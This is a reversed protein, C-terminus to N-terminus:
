AGARRQGVSERAASRRSAPALHGRSQDAPGAVINSSIHPFTTVRNNHPHRSAQPVPIAGRAPPWVRRPPRRLARGPGALATVIADINHRVMGEYTEAPTGPGGLADSYLEGGIAVAFGRAAVAAQLAAITRRPVSSEVFVAPIRRATIFDALAQLDSTGAETVTSVGQLGHVEFGYARGFYRFADHATVLVRLEPSLSEARTRVDDDLQRLRELYTATRERYASAHQPDIEALVEGVRAAAVMWLSVDFWVHPDHVAANNEDGLLRESPIAEAVAVARVRGTMQEFARTMAGELHLGSYFIVDAQQMRIVDRASAKYTHPDIGPGMLGTIRVHDGGINAVLDTIMSVTTVAHIPEPAGDRDRDRTRVSAERGDEACGALLMVWLALRATRAGNGRSILM